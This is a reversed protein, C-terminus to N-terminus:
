LTCLRCYITCCQALPHIVSFLSWATIWSSSLHPCESIELRPLWRTHPGPHHRPPHNALVGPDGDWALAPRSVSRLLAASLELGQCDEGGPLDCCGDGQDLPLNIFFTSLHRLYIFKVLESTKFGGQISALGKFNLGMRGYISIVVVTNACYWAPRAWRVYYHQCCLTKRTLPFWESESM